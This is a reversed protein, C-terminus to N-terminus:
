ASDQSGTGSLLPPQSASENPSSSGSPRGISGPESLQPALGEPPPPDAEGGPSSVNEEETFDVTLGEGDFPVSAIAEFAGKLNRETPEVDGNRVLAILAFACMLTPDGGELGDVLTLPMYGSFKRIWYWENTTLPKETFDIDYAGDFPVIGKLIIKM